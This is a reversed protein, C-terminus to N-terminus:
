GLVIRLGYSAHAKQRTRYGWSRNSARLKDKATEDRDFESLIIGRIVRQEDNQPKPTSAEHKASYPYPLYLSSTWESVNGSM